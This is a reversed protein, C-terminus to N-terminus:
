LSGAVSVFFSSIKDGLVAIGALTIVTILLLTLAYEVVSAGDNGTLFAKMARRLKSM